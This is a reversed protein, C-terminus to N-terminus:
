DSNVYGVVVISSIQALRDFAHEVLGKGIKFQDHHVISRYVIGSIDDSLVLAM